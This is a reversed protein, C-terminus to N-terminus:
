AQIFVQCRRGQSLESRIDDILQQEKPYIADRALEPARTVLYPVMRQAQADFVKGWVEGIGFPHDPYLMLRHMMLSMLSRNKKHAELAKRIDTEITKYAKELVSGMPIQVVTEEYPPLFEAIDELSVFVTSSMLFMGFLLPSAGPRRVLRSTSKEAHSCANDAHRIKEISELVGYLAQFEAEGGTSYEFGEAVMKRPNMRYFLRFLDSAYGGMLTGTAGILKGACRRLVDLNNGQATDNALQHLEDAIAYDWFNRMYRGIFELPAMRQTKNNDAQWLPSHGHTGKHSREFAESVKSDSFDAERLFGGEPNPIPLGTDPNTILRRELRTSRVTYAHKWYYSLKGTEKSVIFYTPTTWKRRWERGAGRAAGCRDRIGLKFTSVL